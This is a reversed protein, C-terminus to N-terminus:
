FLWRFFCILNDIQYPTQIFIGAVLVKQTMDTLERRSGAMPLYKGVPERFGDPLIIISPRMS